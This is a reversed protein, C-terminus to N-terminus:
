ELSSMYSSKDIIRMQHGSYSQENPSERIWVEQWATTNENFMMTGMTCGGGQVEMLYYMNNKLVILTQSVISGYMSTSEIRQIYGGAIPRQVNNIYDAITECMEYTIIENQNVNFTNCYNAIERNTMSLAKFCNIM